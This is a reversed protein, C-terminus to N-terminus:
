AWAFLRLRRKPRVEGVQPFSGNARVTQRHTLTPAIAGKSGAREAKVFGRTKLGVEILGCGCGAPQLDQGTDREFIKQLEDRPLGYNNKM